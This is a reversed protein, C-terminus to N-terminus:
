VHARGIQSLIIAKAESAIYAGKGDEHADAVAKDCLWPTDTIFCDYLRQIYSSKTAQGGENASRFAATPLATRVTTKFQTGKITRAAGTQVEPVAKVVEEIVGAIGNDDGTSKAIDILTPLGM